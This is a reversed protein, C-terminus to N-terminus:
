KPTMALFDEENIVKLDFLALEYAHFITLFDNENLNIDEKQFYKQKIIDLIMEAKKLQEINTIFNNNNMLELQTKLDGEYGFNILTINLFNRLEFLSSLKNIYFLKKIEEFKKHRKKLFFYTKILKYLNLWKKIENQYKIENIIYKIILFFCLILIFIYFLLKTIPLLNDILLQSLAEFFKYIKGITLQLLPM